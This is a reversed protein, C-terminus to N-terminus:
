FNIVSIDVYFKNGRIGGNSGNTDIIYSKSFATNMQMFEHNYIIVKEGYKSTFNSIGNPNPKIYNYIYDEFTIKDYNHIMRDGASLVLRMGPLGKKNENTSVQSYYYLLHRFWLSVDLLNLTSVLDLSRIIADHSVLCNEHLAFINLACIIQMEQLRLAIERWKEEQPEWNSELFVSSFGLLDSWACMTPIFKIDNINNIKKELNTLHM